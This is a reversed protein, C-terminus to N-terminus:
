GLALHCSRPLCVGVSHQFGQLHHCGFCMSTQGDCRYIWRFATENTLFALHISSASNVGGKEWFLYESMDALLIDGKSNLAESFENVIVPKGMIRMVGEPTYSVYPSLVTSAFYLNM